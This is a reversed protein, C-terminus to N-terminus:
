SHHNLVLERDGYRVKVLYHKDSKSYWATFGGSPSSVNAVWCDYQTAGTDVVESGTVMAIPTFFTQSSIDITTFTVFNREAFPINRFLFPLIDADAYRGTRNMAYEYRQPDGPYYAGISMNEGTYNGEYRWEQDGVKESHTSMLVALGSKLMKSDVDIQYTSGEETWSQHWIVRYAPQDLMTIQKYDVRAQGINEGRQLIDYVEFGAIQWVVGNPFSYDMFVEAQVPASSLGLLVILFAFLSIKKM